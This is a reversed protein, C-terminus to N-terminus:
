WSQTKTIQSVRFYNFKKGVGVGLLVLNDELQFDASQEQSMNLKYKM